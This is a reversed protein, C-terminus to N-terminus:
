SWAGVIAGMVVYSVLDYGVHILVLGLKQQEFLATTLRATAIWFIAIMFGAFVGFGLSSEPGIFMAMAFAAIIAAVFSSGFITVMSFRGEKITEETFGNLQMWKKGFLTPSYWLSGVLFTSLAAVIIAWLNMNSIIESLNM